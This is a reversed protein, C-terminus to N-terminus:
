YSKKVQLVTLSTDNEDPQFISYIVQKLVKVFGVVIQRFQDADDM